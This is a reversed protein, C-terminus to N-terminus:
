HTTSMMVLLFSGSFKLIKFSVPTSIRGDFRVTSNKPDSSILDTQTLLPLYSNFDEFSCSAGPTSTPNLITHDAYVRIFKTKRRTNVLTFASLLLGM